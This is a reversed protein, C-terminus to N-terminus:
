ATLVAHGDKTVAVTHEFHAALSGDDTAVTWGDDLVSVDEGGLTVMPELALVMGEQLVIDLERRLHRDVRNPIQPDEHVALGVGHGVFDRVIGYGHPRIVGEIAASIDRIRNGPKVAAIGAELSARTVDMLKQAAPAIDGVAVTVAMDSYYGNVIVGCDLGIIDGQKLPVHSTAPGHVVVENVSTCIASPFPVIGPVPRYGKFASKAGAAAILAETRQNIDATTMGPRVFAAVERVIRSLVQCSKRIGEVQVPTKIIVM